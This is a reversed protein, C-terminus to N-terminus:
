TAQKGAKKAAIKEEMGRMIIWQQAISLVNNWAWYILLGAPFSAFLILFIYPLWGLVKAQVPDTPKPNMKQQLVMTASMIIPWIGIHLLGPPGWDLLGFATFINTPDKASLDIIWGYFPAHRMEITVLLVKYLAFFIPLQVLMPLCGSLPNVKERKWLAMVEQQMKMKDDGYEKKLRELEPQFVRMKAMSKYSKQSLPFLVIKMCVVFLLIALGFNGLLGYFYDLSLFIPKTLFYLIGFDLARDFLDAGLKEKYRELVGLEKAGAFLHMVYEGTSGGSVAMAPALYDVQVREASAQPTLYNFTVDMRSGQKEPLFATLWYKDSLGLWNINGALKQKSEKRLKGYGTENLEKDVMAIPGQHVIASFRDKNEPINRNILGYPMVSITQGSTNHIKQTVSFLYDKDMVVTIEFRMGEPNQWHFTVPRSPTLEESDAQWVTNADPLTIAQGAAALWGVQMFYREESNTPSLLVVEPSDEEVAVRHRALTLDDFKLGKLDISGHLANSNIRVRPVQALAQERPLVVGSAKQAAHLEQLTAEKEQEKKLQEQFAQKQPQVYYKQWVLLLGISMLVALMLNRLEGQSPPTSNVSM